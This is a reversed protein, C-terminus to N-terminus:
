LTCGDCSNEYCTVAANQRPCTTQRITPLTPHEQKRIIYYIGTKFNRKFTAVILDFVRQPTAILSFMTSQSHDIFPLSASYMNLQTEIDNPINGDNFTGINLTDYLLGYSVFINRGNESEKAIMYNLPIMVSETAGTLMSTTATPAQATLMSNAMGNQMMSVTRDWCFRPKIDRLHFQTKGHSFPSNPYNECVVNMKQSYLCSAEIAGMYMAESAQACTDIPDTGGIVSMDYMGFPNIGIERRNQKAYLTMFNNLAMTGMFGLFYSYRNMTSQEYQMKNCADNNMFDTHYPVNYRSHWISEIKDQVDPFDKYMAMNVSLLTCSSSNESTSYNTIEACLNLTKIKGLHSHNSFKNVADDWIIYPAGSECISKVITFMVNKATDKRTYLGAQVFKLYMEEYQDGTYDCLTHKGDLTAHGPFFYWPKDARVCEMFYKPIMLGFFVNELAGKAPHKLNFTEYITDNHVYVYMAIKPKREYLNVYNCSDMRLAYNKFGSRIKGPEKYGTLPVTSVGIGVGVGLSILRSVNELQNVFEADYSKTAVLLRCAEGPIINSDARDANSLISSVHIFGCSFIDYFLKWEDRDTAFLKAIRLMCYQIPERTRLYRNILIRIGHQTYIFDRETCLWNLITDDANLRQNSKEDSPFWTQFTSADIPDCIERYKLVSAIDDTLINLIDEPMDIKRVIPCQEVNNIKTIDHNIYRALNIRYQIPTCLPAHMIISQFHNVKVRTSSYVLLANILHTRNIYILIFFLLHTHIQFKNIHTNM